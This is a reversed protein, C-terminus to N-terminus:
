SHLVPLLTFEPLIKTRQILYCVCKCTYLKHTYLTIEECVQIHVYVWGYRSYEHLVHAFKGPKEWLLFVHLM